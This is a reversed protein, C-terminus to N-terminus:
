DQMISPIAGLTINFVPKIIFDLVIDTLIKRPNYLEGALIEM